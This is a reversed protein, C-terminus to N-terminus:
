LRVSVTGSGTVVLLYVLSPLLVTRFLIRNLNVSDDWNHEDVLLDQVEALGLLYVASFSQQNGYKIM